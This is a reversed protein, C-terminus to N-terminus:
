RGSPWGLELSDLVGLLRDVMPVDFDEPQSIHRGGYDSWAILDAGCTVLSVPPEASLLREQTVPSAIWLASQEDSAKVLYQRQFEASGVPWGFRRARGAAEAASAAPRQEAQRGAREAIASMIPRTGMSARHLASVAPLARATDTFAVSRAAYAGHQYGAIYPFWFAWFPRGAPSTGSLVDRFSTLRDPGTGHGKHAFPHDLHISWKWRARLQLDEGSPAYRWGRTAAEAALRRSHERLQSLQSM